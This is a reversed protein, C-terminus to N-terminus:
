GTDDKGDSDIHLMSRVANLRKLEEPSEAKLDRLPALNGTQFASRVVYLIRGKRGVLDIFKLAEATGAIVVRGLVKRQIEADIELSRAGMEYGGPYTQSSDFKWQTAGDELLVGNTEIMRGPMRLSFEFEEVGEFIRLWPYVGTLQPMIEAIKEETAADPAKDFLRVVAVEGRAPENANRPRDLKKLFAEVDANTLPKGDRHKVNKTVVQAVFREIAPQLDDDDGKSDWVFNRPLDLGHRRLIASVPLEAPVGSRHSAAAVYCAISLDEMLKRGDGRFYEDLGTVDYDAGVQADLNRIVEPLLLDFMEDRAVLFRDFAVCNTLTEIWRFEVLLGFDTRRYDRELDSSLAAGTGKAVYRYHAPIDQPTPFTGTAVFYKAASLNLGSLQQGSPISDAPAAAGSITDWRAIWDLSIAELPLYGEKPQYISRRCSGDANVTTDVRFSKPPEQCGALTLLLLAIGGFSGSAPSRRM